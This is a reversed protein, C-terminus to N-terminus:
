PDEDRCTERGARKVRYLERDSRHLLADLTQGHEPFLAVGVSVGLLAERGGGLRYPECLARVIKSEVLRADNEGRVNVLLAVFEDGGFRAVADNRRLCAGIRRAAEVLVADGAAHGQVDNVEKFRDLDMSLVALRESRRLADERAIAFREAFARRNALGTLSDTAALEQLRERLMSEGTVDAASWLMCEEGDLVLPVASFQGVLESGDGRALRAEARGGEGPADALAKAAPALGLDELTRGLTQGRSRGFVAEFGDNVELVTAERGHAIFLAYPASHFAKAFKEEQASVEDMLRRTLSLALAVLMCIHLAIYGTVAVSDALAPPHPGADPPRATLIVLRAASVVAYGAAVLGPLFTYRRVRPGARALLLWATQANVFALICSVAVTRAVIDDHVVTYHAMAWAFLAYAALNVWHSGRKGTYRRMGELLLWSSSMLVVNGGAVAAVHPLGGRALILGVGAVQTAAQAFWLGLGDFKRGYRAWLLATTLLSIVNVILNLTLLTTFDLM